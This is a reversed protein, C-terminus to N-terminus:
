RIARAAWRPTASGSSSVVVSQLLNRLILNVPVTAEGERRAEGQDRQCEKKKQAACTTAAPSVRSGPSSPAVALPQANKECVVQHLSLDELERIGKDGDM